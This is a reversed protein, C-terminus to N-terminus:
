LRSEWPRCCTRCPVRWLRWGLAPARICMLVLPLSLAAWAHCGALPLIGTSFRRPIRGALLAGVAVWFLWAFLTWGMFFENGYFIVLLERVALVQAVLSTIGLVLFSGALRKRM